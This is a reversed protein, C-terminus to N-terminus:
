PFVNVYNYGPIKKKIKKSIVNYLAFLKRKKKCMKDYKKMNMNTLFILKKYHNTIENLSVFLASTFVNYIKKRKNNYYYRKSSIAYNISKKKIIQKPCKNYKIYIINRNPSKIINFFNIKTKNKSIIHYKEIFQMDYLSNIKFSFMNKKYIIDRIWKQQTYRNLSGTNIHLVGTNICILSKINNYNGIIWNHYSNKVTFIRGYMKFKYRMNVIKNESCDILLKPIRLECNCMKRIKGSKTLWVKKGKEPTNGILDIYEKVKAHKTLKDGGHIYNMLSVAHVIHQKKYNDYTSKTKKCTEVCKWPNMYAFIHRRISQDNFVLPGNSIKGHKKIIPKAPHTQYRMMVMKNYEKFMFLQTIM